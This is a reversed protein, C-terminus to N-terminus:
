GEAGAKVVLVIILGLNQGAHGDVVGLESSELDLREDVDLLAAIVLAHRGLHTSNKKM